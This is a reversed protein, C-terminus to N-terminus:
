ADPERGLAVFQRVSFLNPTVPNDDSPEYIKVKRSFIKVRRTQASGYGTLPLDRNGLVNPISKVEVWAVANLKSNSATFQHAPLLTITDVVVAEDPDKRIASASVVHQPFQPPLM